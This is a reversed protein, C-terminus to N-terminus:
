PTLRPAEKPNDARSALDVDPDLVAIFFPYYGPKLTGVRIRQPILRCVSLLTQVRVIRVVRACLRVGTPAHGSSYIIVTPGPSFNQVVHVLMTMHAVAKVALTVSVAHVVLANLLQPPSSLTSPWPSLSPAEKPNDSNALDVKSRFGLDVVTSCLFISLLLTELYGGM